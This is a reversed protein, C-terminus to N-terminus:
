RCKVAGLHDDGHERARGGAGLGLWMLRTYAGGGGDWKKFIWKFIIRGELGIGELHDREMLDRCLCGTHGEGTVQGHWM